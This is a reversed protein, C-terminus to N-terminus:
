AGTSATATTACSGGGCCSGEGSGGAVAPVIMVEDGESVPTEQSQLDRINEENVFVNVFNRLEGSDTFLHPRLKPYSTGLKNLLQGVNSGEVSVQDQNDAFSRLATPISVTPMTIRIEPEL